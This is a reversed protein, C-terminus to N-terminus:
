EGEERDSDPTKRSRSSGNSPRRPSELTHRREDTYSSRRGRDEHRRDRYRGSDRRARERRDDRVRRDDRGRHDRDRDRRPSYDRRYRDDPTRRGRTSHSKASSRTDKWDRPESDRSRKKHETDVSGDYPRKSGSPTNTMHKVVLANNRPVARHFFLFRAHIDNSILNPEKTTTTSFHGRQQRNNPKLGRRFIPMRQISYASRQVAMLSKLGGDSNIFHRTIPSYLFLSLIQNSPALTVM